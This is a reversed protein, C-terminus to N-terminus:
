FDLLSSESKRKEEEQDLNTRYDRMSDDSLDEGSADAALDEGEGVPASPNEPLQYDASLRQQTRDDWWFRPGKVKGCGSFTVAAALVLFFALLCKRM